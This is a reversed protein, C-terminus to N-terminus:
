AVWPRWRTSNRWGEVWSPCELTAFCNSNSNSRVDEVHRRCLIDALRACRPSRSASWYRTQSRSKSCLHVVYMCRYLDEALRASCPSRYMRGAFFAELKAFPAQLVLAVCMDTLLVRASRLPALSVCESLFPNRTQWELWMCSYVGSEPM